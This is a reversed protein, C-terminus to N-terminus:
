GGGVESRLDKSEWSLFLDPGSEFFFALLTDADTSKGVDLGFCM